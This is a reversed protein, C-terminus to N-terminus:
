DASNSAIGGLIRTLSDRNNLRYPLLCNDILRTRGLRVATSLLLPQDDAGSIPVLTVPDNISIYEVEFEAAFAHIAAETLVDTQREGQDYAAAARQLGAYITAAKDREDASLYRNRSSMALGSAERTTPCVAITLPFNLDRAMQKIVVVQQADKQGFYATTPQTLNFLKAVVTVVGDFHGPRHEGELGRTVGSVSVGTSFGNPYMNTRTPTFVADVGAQELMALDAPLDRPYRDFDENAGFQLPNVFITVLVHDNERRAAEVLSLHGAHLAGMTPVVGVKGQLQRRAARLAPVDELIRM